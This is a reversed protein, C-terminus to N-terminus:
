GWMTNLDNTTIATLQINCNGSKFSLTEEQTLLVSIVNNEIKLDPM